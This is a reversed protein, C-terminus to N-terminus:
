DEDEEWDTERWQAALAIVGGLIAGLISGIIAAWFFDIM